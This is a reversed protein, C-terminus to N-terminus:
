KFTIQIMRFTLLQKQENNRGRHLTYLKFINSLEATKDNIIQFRHLEFSGKVYSSLVASFGEDINYRFERWYGKTYRTNHM